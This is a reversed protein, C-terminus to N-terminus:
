FEYDILEYRVGGAVMYSGKDVHVVIGRGTNEITVPGAIYHFQIPQLTKNLRAGRIDIPSQDRGRNCAAYSPDLKSWVLPGSHGAYSWNAGNQAAAFPTLLVFLAAIAKHRM